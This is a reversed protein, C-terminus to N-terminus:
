KTKKVEKYPISVGLNYISRLCRKNTQWAELVKSSEAATIDKIDNKQYVIKMFQEIIAPDYNRIDEHLNDKM